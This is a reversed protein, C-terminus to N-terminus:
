KFVKYDDIDDGDILNGEILCQTIWMTSYVRTKYKQADEIVWAPCKKNAVIATTVELM